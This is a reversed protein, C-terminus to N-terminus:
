RIRASEIPTGRDRLELRDFGMKAQSFLESTAGNPETAGLSTVRGNALGEVDYRHAGEVIVYYWSRDRAYLVKAAPASATGSFQAHSFHSHIMALMAPNQQPTSHPVLFGVILAAAVALVTWGWSRRQVFGLPKGAFRVEDAIKSGRELALVTEEAEGLRRLCADCRAVHAEVVAREREDLAGAAYLEGLEGVHMESEM